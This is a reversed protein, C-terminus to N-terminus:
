KVSPLKPFEPVKYITFVGSERLTPSGNAMAVELHGQTNEPVEVYYFDGDNDGIIIDRGKNYSIHKIINIGFGLKVGGHEHKGGFLIGETGMTLTMVNIVYKGPALFENIVLSSQGVRMEKKFIQEGYIVIDNGMDLTQYVGSFPIPNGREETKTIVNEYSNVTQAATSQTINEVYSQNKKKSKVTNEEKKDLIKGDMAKDITRNVKSSLNNQITNVAGNVIRQGINSLWGAHLQIQTSLVVMMLIGIKKKTMRLMM